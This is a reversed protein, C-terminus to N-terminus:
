SPGPTRQAMHAWLGSVRQPGAPHKKGTFCHSAPPNWVEHGLTEEDLLLTNVTFRELNLCALHNFGPLVWQRMTYYYGLSSFWLLYRKLVTFCRHRRQVPSCQEQMRTSITIMYQTFWKRVVPVAAWQNDLSEPFQLVTSLQKQEKM